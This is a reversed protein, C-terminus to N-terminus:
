KKMKSSDMPPPPPPMMKMMDKPDMFSWHETAKGDKFKTLEIMNMNYPGKPMGMSGDSNGSYNMWSYVYDGSAADNVDDMKMDAMSTHIMNVMAKLSDVGKVDGHETHDVFDDAILSDLSAANGTKFANGIAQSAAINKQEQAKNGDDATTAPQNCSFCTCIMGAIAMSFIKKMIIL